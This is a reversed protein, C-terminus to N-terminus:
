FSVCFWCVQLGDLQELCQVGCATVGGACHVRLLDLVELLTNTALGAPLSRVGYGSVAIVTAIVTVKISTPTM